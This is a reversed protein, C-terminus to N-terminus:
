SLCDAVAWLRNDASTIPIPMPLAVISDPHINALKADCAYKGIANSQM